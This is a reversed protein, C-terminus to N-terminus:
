ANKNYGLHTIYVFKLDIDVQEVYEVKWVVLGNPTNFPSINEGRNIVQGNDVIEKIHAQNSNDIFRIKKL